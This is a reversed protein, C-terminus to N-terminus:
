QIPPPPTTLIKSFISWKWILLNTRSLHLELTNAISNGREQVLGDLHCRVSNGVKYGNNALEYPQHPRGRDWSTHWAMAVFEASDDRTLPVLNEGVWSYFADQWGYLQLKYKKALATLKKVFYAYYDSHKQLAPYAKSLRQCVSSNTLAERPIEDGGFHFGTLPQVDEHINVLAGMIHEVFTYTSELCPNIVCDKWGQVSYYRSLDNLDSLLYTSAQSSSGTRLLKAYRAEMSKIAAHAHGPLDIEPVVKIHLQDAHHLIAKYEHVKYYGCSFNRGDPGSGYGALLRERETVTHGRCGGVQWLLHSLESLGLSAYICWYVLMISEPLPKNGPQCWVM